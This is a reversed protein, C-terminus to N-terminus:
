LYCGIENEAEQITTYFGKYDISIWEGNAYGNTKYKGKIVIYCSDIDSKETDLFVQWIEYSIVVNNMNVYEYDDYDKNDKEGDGLTDKRKIFVPAIEM